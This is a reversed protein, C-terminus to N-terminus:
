RAQPAAGGDTVFPQKQHASLALPRWERSEQQQRSERQRKGGEKNRARNAGRGRGQWHAEHSGWGGGSGDDSDSCEDYHQKKAGGQQRQGGERWQRAKGGGGGREPRPRKKGQRQEEYGEDPEPLERSQHYGIAIDRANGVQQFWRTAEPHKAKDPHTKRATAKYADKIAQEGPRRSEIGLV